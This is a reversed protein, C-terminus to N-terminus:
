NTTLDSYFPNKKFSSSFPLMQKNSTFSFNKYLAMKFIHGVKHLWSLHTEIYNRKFSFHRTLLM